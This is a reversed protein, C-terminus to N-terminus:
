EYDENEKLYETLGSYTAFISSTLIKNKDTCLYGTFAGAAVSNYADKTGRYKEITLNAASYIATVKAFKKGTSHMSATLSKGTPLFIGFVSGFLYGRVADMAVKEGM